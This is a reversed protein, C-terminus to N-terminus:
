EEGELTKKLLEAKLSFSGETVIRDGEKLGETIEVWGDARRGTKVPRPIFSDGTGPQFVVQRGEVDRVAGEPVALVRRGAPPVLEIEAFMGPKLKRLRNAVEVRAKVTRTAEDEVDGILTLRGPFTEGPWASVVVSAACGPGVLSLDKEHLSAIVWLTDMDALEFLDAGAQIQQGATAGSSIITGSFPARIVLLNQPSLTEKIKQIDDDAAGMLNLKGAASRALRDTVAAAEKDAEHADRDAQRLLQIFDQQAALYDASYVTALSQGQRVRDGEFVGVSELIGAIRSSVCSYRQKNLSVTGAAKLVTTLARSQVAGIRIGSLRVAEAPLAVGPNDKKEAAEGRRGAPRSCATLLTLQLITLGILGIFRTRM